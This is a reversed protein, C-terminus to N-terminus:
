RCRPDHPIRYSITICGIRNRGRRAQPMRRDMSISISISASAPPAQATGDSRGARASPDLTGASGVSMTPSVVSVAVCHTTGDLQAVTETVSGRSAM